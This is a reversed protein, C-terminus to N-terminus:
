FLKVKDMYGHTLALKKPNSERVWRGRYDPRAGAPKGTLQGSSRQGRVSYSQPPLETLRCHSFFRDASSVRKPPCYTNMKAAGKSSLALSGGRAEKKTETEIRTETEEGTRREPKEEAETERRATVAAGREARSEAAAVGHGGTDPVLGSLQYRGHTQEAMTPLWDVSVCRGRRALDKRYLM